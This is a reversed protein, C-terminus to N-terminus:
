DLIKAAANEQHEGEGLMGSSPADSPASSQSEDSLELKESGSLALTTQVM